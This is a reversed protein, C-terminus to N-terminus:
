PLLHPQRVLPWRRPHSLHGRVTTRPRKEQRHMSLSTPGFLGTDTVHERSLGESLTGCISALVAPHRCAMGYQRYEPALDLLWTVAMAEWGESGPPHVSEPWDRPLYRAVVAAYNYKDFMLKIIYGHGSNIHLIM